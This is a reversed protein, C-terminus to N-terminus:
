CCAFVDKELPRKLLAADFLERTVGIELTAGDEAEDGTGHWSLLLWAAAM